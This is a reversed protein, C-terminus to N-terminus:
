SKFNLTELNDQNSIEMCDILPDYNCKVSFISLLAPPPPPTAGQRYTFFQFLINNRLDSIKPSLM